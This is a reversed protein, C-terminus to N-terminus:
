FKIVARIVNGKRLDSVAENIKEFKYIKPVLKSLNIKNKKIIRLFKVLDRSPVYEGGWSGFIKKGKILEFPDLKIKHTFKPHSAFYVSGHDNILDFALEITDVRGASEFIYDSKNSNTIKFYKSKFNKDKVNLVYNAGLKKAQDLKKNSIDIAILKNPHLCKSAIIASMGIGGLGLVSIISNKKPRAQNLVIGFGTPIACGFLVAEKFPLNKPKKILRNESVVSYENFTTIPGGNINGLKEHYYTTGGAELGKGKIWGMIVDSGISFNKVSKHMDIITGSGEHGMLHPLWKDKGRKGDIEMIQSHCIGSYKLKVLLQGKRLKPLIVNNIISLKKKNKELVAAKM